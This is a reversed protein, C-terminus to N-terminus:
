VSHWAPTTGCLPTHALGDAYISSNYHQWCPSGPNDSSWLLEDVQLLKVTLQLDCDCHILHLAQEDIDCMQLM